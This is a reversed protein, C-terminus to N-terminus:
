GLGPPGFAELAKIGDPYIELLKRLGTIKFVEMINPSIGCLKLRGGERKCQNHLRVILGITMSSLSEVRSFDLLLKRRTAAQLAPNQFEKEMQQILEPELIKSENFSVILVDDKERVLLATTAM